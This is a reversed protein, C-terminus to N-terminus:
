IIWLMAIYAPDVFGVSSSARMVLVVRIKSSVACGEVFEHLWVMYSRWAIGFRREGCLGMQPEMNQNCHHRLLRHFCKVQQRFEMTSITLSALRPLQHHADLQMCARSSFCPTRSWRLNGPALQSEVHFATESLKRSLASALLLACACVPACPNHVFLEYTNEIQVFVHARCVHKCVRICMRVCM